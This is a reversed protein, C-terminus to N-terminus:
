LLLPTGSASVVTETPCHRIYWVGTPLLIVWIPRPGYHSKYKQLLLLLLWLGLQSYHYVLAVLAGMHCTEVEWMVMM